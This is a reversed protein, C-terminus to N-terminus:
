DPFLGQPPDVTVVRETLLVETVIARVFPVEVHADGTAVVLRDQASGAILDEVVGLENGALDTVVLGILQEPWFEDEELTRRDGADIFLSTGRLEEAANRSTVDAFSVLWGEKHPHAAVVALAPHNADDTWLVTGDSFQDSEDGLVQVITAGRIGHARRVYGVKVAHEPSPGEPGSVM